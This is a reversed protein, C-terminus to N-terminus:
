TLDRLRLGGKKKREEEREDWIEVIAQAEQQMGRALEGSAALRRIISESADVAKMDRDLQEDFKAMEAEQEETPFDYHFYLRFGLFGITANVNRYFIKDFEFQLDLLDFAVWNYHDYHLLQAWQNSGQIYFRKGKVLYFIHHEDKHFFKIM